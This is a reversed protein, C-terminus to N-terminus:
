PFIFGKNRYVIRSKVKAFLKGNRYVERSFPMKIGSDDPKYDAYKISINGDPSVIDISLLEGTQSSFTYIFENNEKNSSLVEVEVSDVNKRGVFKFSNVNEHLSRMDTIFALQFMQEDFFVLSRLALAEKDSVDIRRGSTRLDVLKSVGETANGIFYARENNGTEGIKIYSAGNARRICYFEEEKGGMEISGKILMDNLGSVESITGLSEFFRKIINNSNSEPLRWGINMRKYEEQIKEDRESIQSHNWIIFLYCLGCLGAFVSLGLLIKFFARVRSLGNEKRILVSQEMGVSAMAHAQATNMQAYTQHHEPKDSNEETIESQSEVLVEEEYSSEYEVDYEETEVEEIEIEEAFPPPPPPPFAGFHNPPFPFPPPPFAEVFELEEDEDIEIEGNPSFYEEYVESEELYEYEYLVDEEIHESSKEETHKDIM